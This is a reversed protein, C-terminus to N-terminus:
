WAGTSAINAEGDTLVVVVPVRSKDANDLLIQMGTAIGTQTYTGSLGNNWSKSSGLKLAGTAKDGATGKATIVGNNRGLDLSLTNYHNLGAITYPEGMYSVVAIRNDADNGVMEAILKNAETVMNSMKNNDRMSSSNDLVLVVDLKATGTKETTVSTSSGLASYTILFDSDNTIEFGDLSVKEDTYVSKDVWVRGAYRNGDKDTGLMDKYSMATSPDAVPGIEDASAIMTVLPLAGLVITIALIVSLVKKLKRNINTM